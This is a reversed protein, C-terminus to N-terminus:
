SRHRLRPCPPSMPSLQSHRLLRPMPPRSTRRGANRPHRYKTHLETSHSLSRPYTLIFVKMTLAVLVYACYSITISLSPSLIYTSTPDSTQRVKDKDEILKIFRHCPSPVFNSPYIQSLVSYAFADHVHAILTRGLLLVLISCLCQHITQLYVSLDYSVLISHFTFSFPEQAPPASM